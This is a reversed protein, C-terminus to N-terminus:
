SKAAKHQPKKQKTQKLRFRVIRAILPYPVPQDLPFQVTGKGGKYAALTEKFSPEERPAPYLSVHHKYGAFYIYGGNLRFAPIAYSITEEAGPAAKRITARIKQLVAQTAEPFGSIYADITEPKATM